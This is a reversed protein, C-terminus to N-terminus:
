RLWAIRVTAPDFGGRGSKAGPLLTVTMLTRVLERRHDLSMEEWGKAPDVASALVQAVPDVAGVRSLAAEAEEAARLAAGRAALFEVRTLVQAGYDAALETMRARAARAAGALAAVDVMADEPRVLEAADPRQLREVVAGVVLDDIPAMSRALHRTPCELVLRQERPQRGARLGVKVPAGCHCVAIGTLLHRRGRPPHHGAANAHIRVQAGRWTAEDVLPEWVGRAVIEYRRPRPGGPDTQVGRLGCHRPNELVGRVKDHAWRNGRSTAVGEADLWRAIASLSEGALFRRFMAVVYPSEHPDPTIGDQCWGFARRGGSHIRGMKARQEAAVKQRTSKREVEARAVAGKIRAFMRGNDSALDIDRDVSELRISHKDALDIFQEIEVPRRTLRDLDWVVVAQVRGARIDDLMREYEPRRKGTFASVDNDPYLTYTWGRAECLAVCAARQREIGLGEGASDKSIRLYIAAHVAM